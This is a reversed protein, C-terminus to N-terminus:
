HGTQPSTCMVAFCSVVILLVYFLAGSWERLVFPIHHRVVRLNRRTEQWVRARRAARWEAISESKEGPLEDVKNEPKDFEHEATASRQLVLFAAYVSIGLSFLKVWVAYRCPISKM